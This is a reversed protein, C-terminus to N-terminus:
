IEGLEDLPQDPRAIAWFAYGALAGSGCLFALLDPQRRPAGLVFVLTGVAPAHRWADFLFFLAASLVSAGLYSWRSTAGIRTLLLHTPVGLLLCLFYCPLFGFGLTALFAVVAAGFSARAGIVLMVGALLLLPLAPAFLFGALTRTKM